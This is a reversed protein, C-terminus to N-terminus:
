VISYCFPQDGFAAVSGGRSSNTVASLCEDLPTTTLTGAPSCVFTVAVAAASPVFHEAEEPLQVICACAAAVVDRLSAKTELEVRVAAMGSADLAIASIRHTPAAAAAASLDVALRQSPVARHRLASDIYRAANVRLAAVDHAAIRGGRPIEVGLAGLGLTVSWSVNTAAAAPTRGLHVAISEVSGLPGHVRWRNGPVSSRTTLSVCHQRIQELSRRFASWTAKGAPLAVQFTVCLGRWTTLAPERTPSSAVFPATTHLLVAGPAAGGLAVTTVATRSSMEAAVVKADRCVEAVTISAGSSGGHGPRTAAHTLARLALWAATSASADDGSCIRIQAISAVAGESCGGRLSLLLNEISSGAGAASSGDVPVILDAILLRGGVKNSSRTGDSYHSQQQQQVRDAGEMIRSLEALSVQEATSNAVLSVSADGAGRAADLPGLNCLEGAILVILPSKIAAQGKGGVGASAGSAAEFFAILSRRSLPETEASRQHLGVRDKEAALLTVDCEAALAISIFASLGSDDRASRGAGAIVVIRTAPVLISLRADAADILSGTSTINGRPLKFISDRVPSTHLSVDVAATESGPSAGRYSSFASQLAISSSTQHLGALVSEDGASQLVPLPAFGPGHTRIDDRLANWDPELDDYDAGWSIAASTSALVEV